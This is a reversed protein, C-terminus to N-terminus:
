AQHIGVPPVLPEHWPDVWGPGAELGAEPVPTEPLQLRLTKEGVM